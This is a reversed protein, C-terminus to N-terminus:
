TADFQKLVSFILPFKICRDAQVHRLNMHLIFYSPYGRMLCVKNTAAFIQEQPATPPLYEDTIKLEVHSDKSDVLVRELNYTMERIKIGMHKFELTSLQRERESSVYIKRPRYLSSHFYEISSDTLLSTKGTQPREFRVRSERRLGGMLGRFPPAGRQLGKGKAAANQKKKMRKARNRTVKVDGVARKVKKQTKKVQSLLKIAANIKAQAAKYDKEEAAPMKFSQSAKTEKMTQVTPVSKTSGIHTGSMNSQSKLLQSADVKMSAQSQFATLDPSKSKYSTDEWDSGGRGHSGKRDVHDLIEQLKSVRVKRVQQTSSTKVPKRRQKTGKAPPM